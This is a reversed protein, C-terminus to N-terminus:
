STSQAVAAAGVVHNPGTLVPLEAVTFITVPSVFPVAYTKRTRATVADPDVFQDALEADIVGVDVACVPTM